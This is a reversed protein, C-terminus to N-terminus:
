QDFLTIFFLCGAIFTVRSLLILRLRAREFGYHFRLPYEPATVYIRCAFVMMCIVM